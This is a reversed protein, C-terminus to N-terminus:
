RSPDGQWLKGMWLDYAYMTFDGAGSEHAFTVEGFYISGAVNYFDVRAYSFPKALIKALECMKDYSKPKEIERRIAPYKIAFPLWNLQEDFFSRNHNTYRDFDIHLVIKSNGDKQKFVHFKYDRIDTEGPEPRLCREVLVRPQIESYWPEGSLKGFDVKLQENVSFCARDIQEVTSSPTLLHVPGSNHNAKVLCDGKESIIEKLKSPTISKGVYYNEIIFEDGIIEAAWRKAEIKDACVSFLKHEANRKRYNIKENFTKPNHFDPLYKNKKIFKFLFWCNRVFGVNRYILRHLKILLM